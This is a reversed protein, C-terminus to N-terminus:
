TFYRTLLLLRKVIRYMGSWKFSSTAIGVSKVARTFCSPSLSLCPRASSSRVLRRLIKHEAMCFDKKKKKKQKEKATPDKVTPTRNWWRNKTESLNAAKWVFRSNQKAQRRRRWRWFVQEHIRLTNNIYVNQEANQKKLCDGDNMYSTYLTCPFALKFSRIANSCQSAWFRRLLTIPYASASSTDSRM